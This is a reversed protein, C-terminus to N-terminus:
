GERAQSRGIKRLAWQAAQRLAALNAHDKAGSHTGAPSADAAWRELHPVFRALGSNGMAIALNRRFGAFGTRRIPSGNFLREFDAMELDALWGLDPNVLEARM